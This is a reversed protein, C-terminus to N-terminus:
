ITVSKVEVTLHFSEAVGEFKVPVRNRLERFQRAPVIKRTLFSFFKTVSGIALNKFRMMQIFYECTIYIGIHGV